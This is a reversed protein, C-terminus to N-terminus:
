PAGPLKRSQELRLSAAGYNVRKALHIKLRARELGVVSDVHTAGIGGAAMHTALRLAPTVELRCCACQVHVHVHLHLHVHVHVHVHMYM